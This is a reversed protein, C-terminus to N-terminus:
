LRNPIKFKKSTLPYENKVSDASSKWTWKRNPKNKFFKNMGRENRQILGYNGMIIKEPKGLKQM